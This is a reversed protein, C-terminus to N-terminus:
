IIRCRIDLTGLFPGYSQCGGMYADYFPEIRTRYSKQQPDLTLTELEPLGPSQSNTGPGPTLTHLIQPLGQQFIGNLRNKSKKRHFDDVLTPSNQYRFHFGSGSAGAWIQLWPM